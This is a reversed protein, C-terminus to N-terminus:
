FAEPNLAGMFRGGGNVNDYENVIVDEAIVENNKVTSYQNSTDSVTVVWTKFFPNYSLLEIKRSRKNKKTLHSGKKLRSVSESIVEWSGLENNTLYRKDDRMTGINAPLFNGKTENHASEVFCGGRLKETIKITHTGKVDRMKLIDGTSIGDFFYDVDNTMFSNRKM